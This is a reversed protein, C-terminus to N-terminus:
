GGGGAELASGLPTTSAGTRSRASRRALGARTRNRRRIGRRPAQRPRARLAALRPVHQPRRDRLLRPDRCGPGRELVRVGAGREDRAQRAPGLLLAVHELSARGRGQYASLVDMLDLHRAHYRNLYNNWKFDRDHEGTDWYTPSAIGHRLMRYHLVPLDFGSGNWSVLTPRLKELGGFFRRVLDDEPSDVAGLSWVQLQDGSRLLTSIAVVRHQELPLFSSGTEENRAALMQAAVALDDGEFGNGAGSARCGARDRHRVGPLRRRRDHGKRMLVAFAMVLGAEDTLSVHGEGAGLSDAVARGRASFIVQPRGRLMPCSGSTASGCATGSDRAWRRPSRRRPPSACPSFACRAAAPISCSRAGRADAPAGRFARRLTRVDGRHARGPRPRHRSGFIMRLRRAGVMLRKMEAVAPGLGSMVARSVIAHGINLEALEPIAGGAARQPLRARPRRQRRPRGRRRAAGSDALRALERARDPARRRPTPAPICSSPRRAPARRPRSRRPMPTSSSRCASEARRSGGAPTPSRRRGAGRRRARGRDDGRHAEGAGPLRGAPQVELAIAVMEPTAAIELNMRTQLAGACRACTATRSTAATRACTCRSATRAGSSRSWRLPLPDPSRGGRAQRLTAVHDINVGLLIEQGTM